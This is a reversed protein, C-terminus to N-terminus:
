SNCACGYPNYATNTSQYPSCTIYAPQPFPRLTSILTANQTHQSLQFNATQLERDRDALKDRLDQMSKIYMLSENPCIAVSIGGGVPINAIEMSNNIIYVNGQPQPFFQTGQYASSSYPYAM